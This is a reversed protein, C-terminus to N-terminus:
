EVILNMNGNVVEGYFVFFRSFDGFTGETFSKSSPILRQYNAVNDGDSDFCITIEEKKDGPTPRILVHTSYDLSQRETEFIIGSDPYRVRLWIKWDGVGQFENPTPVWDDTFGMLKITYISGTVNPLNKVVKLSMLSSSRSGDHFVTLIGFGWTMALQYTSTDRLSPTFGGPNLIFQRMEGLKVVPYDVSYDNLGNYKPRPGLSSAFTVTVSRVSKTNDNPYISFTLPTAIGAQISTTDLTSTAVQNSNIFNEYLLFASFDDTTSNKSLSCNHFFVIFGILIVTSRLLLDNIKMGYIIRMLIEVVFGSVVM